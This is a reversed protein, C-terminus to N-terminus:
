DFLFLRWSGKEPYIILAYRHRLGPRRLLLEADNRWNQKGNSNKKPKFSRSIDNDRRKMKSLLSPSFFFPNAIQPSPQLTSGPHDTESASLSPAVRETGLMWDRWGIVPCCERGGMYYSVREWYSRASIFWDVNMAMVACCCYCCCCCLVLRISLCPLFEKTKRKKKRKEFNINFMTRLSDLCFSLSPFIWLRSILDLVEQRQLWNRATEVASWVRARLAEDKVHGLDEPLLATFLTLPTDEPYM